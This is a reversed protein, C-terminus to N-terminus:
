ATEDAQNWGAVTRNSGKKVVAKGGVRRIGEGFPVEEDGRKGREPAGDWSGFAFEDAAHEVVEVLLDKFARARM